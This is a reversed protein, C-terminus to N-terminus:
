RRVTRRRRRAKARERRYRLLDLVVGVGSLGLSALAIWAEPTWPLATLQMASRMPETGNEGEGAM